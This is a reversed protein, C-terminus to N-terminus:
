KWARRGTAEMRAIEEEPSQEYGQQNTTPLGRDSVEEGRNMAGQPKQSTDLLYNKYDPFVDGFLEFAKALLYNLLKPTNPNPINAVRGIFQDIILLKSKRNSELEINSTVPEFAYDANPDFFYVLEGLMDMATEPRMFRYSMNLIMWYFENLFTNEFTLAKFNSRLNTRQESGAVATATTSAQRPLEGMTTPYIASSKESFGMLMNIMNMAGSVDPNIKMEQIDDPNELEMVHEPEFRITDNDVLAYKRGKLVPLTALKTRDAAMNFFDNMAAQAEKLYKGDGIGVDRTPHIYCIGRVFPKYTEGKADYYPTPRFGILIKKRNIEVFTVISEVLEANDLKKGLSDYGPEIRTIEGTNDDREKVIAWVKGYREYLDMKVFIRSKNSEYINKTVTGETVEATKTKTVQGDILEKVKDLNFYQQTVSNEVLETYMIESRVTIYDKEQVSYVYGYNYFINRPHIVDFNFRDYVIRIVPETTDLLEAVKREKDGEYTEIKQEWWCRVWVQGKIANILRCRIYKPYYKLYKSNLTKNILIKASKGKLEDYPKDGELKCDVFDRTQFLQNAWLSAETHLIAPMEPIFADSMWEYDKESRKCEMMDQLQDFEEIEEENAYESARIEQEFIDLLLAEINSDM